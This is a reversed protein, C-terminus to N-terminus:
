DARRASPQLIAFLSWRRCASSADRLLNQLVIRVFLRWPVDYDLRHRDCYADHLNMLCRLNYRLRERVSFRVRTGLFRALDPSVYLYFPGWWPSKRNYYYTSFNAHFRKVNLRRIDNITRQYGLGRENHLSFKELLVVESGDQMFLSNHACSGETSVLTRCEQMLRVTQRFNLSEPRVFECEPFRRAFAREVTEEGFDFRRAGKTWGTRSFYVMRTPLLREGDLCRGVLYDITERYLESYVFEGLARDNWWSANPVYLRRFRTPREIRELSDIDVGLLSFMERMNASYTEDASEGSTIYVWRVGPKLLHRHQPLWAWAHKLCDTFSHGWCNYLLGVWVAEEDRSDIESEDLRCREDACGDYLQTRELLVGDRYCAGSAFRGRQSPVVVANDHALVEPPTKLSFQGDM